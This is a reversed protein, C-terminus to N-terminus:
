KTPTQTAQTLAQRGAITTVSQTAYRDWGWSAVPFPRNLHGCKTCVRRAEDNNFDAFLEPLVAVSVFPHEGELADPPPTADFEKLYIEEHCKECRLSCAETQPGSEAQRQTIVMIAFSKPDKEKKLFSNVGHIRAGVFVQGTGLVAGNAALALVVEDQTNHHFFHGYDANPGGIIMAGAPVMAGPHLYPFLPMLQTNSHQMAEFVNVKLPPRDRRPPPIVPNDETVLADGM